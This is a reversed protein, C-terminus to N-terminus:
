QSNRSYNAQVELTLSTSFVERKQGSITKGAEHPMKELKETSRYYKIQLQIHLLIFILEM